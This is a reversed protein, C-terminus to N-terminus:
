KLIFQFLNFISSVINENQISYTGIHIWHLFVFCGNFVNSIDILSEFNFYKRFVFFCIPVRIWDIEFFIEPNNASIFDDISNCFIVNFLDKALQLQLNNEYFIVFFLICMFLLLSKLVWDLSEILFSIVLWNNRSSDANLDDKCSSLLSSLVLFAYEMFSINPPYLPSTNFVNM